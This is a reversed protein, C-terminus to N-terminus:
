TLDGSKSLRIPIFIDEEKGIASFNERTGEVMPKLMGPEPDGTAEAHVIIQHKNDVM